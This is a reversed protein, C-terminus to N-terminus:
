DYDDYLPNSGYRGSERIGYDGGRLDNSFSSEAVSKNLSGFKRRPSVSDVESAEQVVKKIYFGTGDCKYCNENDGRCSCAAKEYSVALQGENAQGLATGVDSGFSATPVNGVVNGSQLGQRPPRNIKKNKGSGGNKYKKVKMGDSSRRAM